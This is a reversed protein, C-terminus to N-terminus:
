ISIKEKNKPAWSGTEHSYVEVEVSDPKLDMIHFSGGKTLTLSGSNLSLPKGPIIESLHTHGFIYLKINSYREVIEKLKEFRLMLNRYPMHKRTVIPFHNILILPQEKPISDLLRILKEELAESFLGQSSWLPTAITTDLGVWKYGEGFDEYIISEDRLAASASLKQYFRKSLASEKTYNDHNGPIIFIKFGKKQLHDLFEKALAYEKHNSTTTFDGTIIVHTVGKSKLLAPIENIDFHVKNKKRNFYYNLTALLKKSFFNRYNLDNKFFHIDSLHAVKM